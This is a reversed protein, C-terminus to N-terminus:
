TFNSRNLSTVDQFTVKTGDTLSISVSGHTVTQSALANAIANPGYGELDPGITKSGKASM